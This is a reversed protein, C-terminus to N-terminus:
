KVPPFPVNGGPLAPWNKLHLDRQPFPIDIGHKQFAELIAQNLEHTAANMQAPEPSPIFVRLIFNLSSDGFAQFYIQPPPETLVRHNATCVEELVQTVHRVDAQYSVGVQLTLRAPGRGYHTWNTIKGSLIESNPIILVARDMTQFITSRVRIEKVRGWQGDIVLLDGVKIPREFLLILGSIFNNVINQLGFGLGVGLGGAVLALNLLPFGLISLVLLVTITLILYHLSTSITYQIGTDWGTRPFVHVALLSRTFRSGLLGLYIVLGTLLLNLPTLRLSGLSPGWNLWNLSRLLSESKLGWAWLTGMILAAVLIVMIGQDALRYFRQLLEAQEPFKKVTWGREPHLLHHLIKDVALWLLWLMLLVAGTWATAETMYGALNHFGLLAALIIVSLLLLVLGRLTLMVGLRRFWAPGPLEPLLKALYPRRGLWLAWALFGVGFLHELLDRSAEPFTLLEASKLVWFGLLLYALFIRLYGRYFRATGKDLALLGEPERAFIVQVVRSGLRWAVLTILLYFLSRTVPSPWWGLIVLALGAWFILGLLFFNAALIGGLDLLARLDKTQARTRYHVLTPLAWAAGRRTGWALLLLSAILGILPALHDKIFLYWRGSHLLDQLWGYGQGPLALLTQAILVVEQWFSVPTQRKLLEAKWTEEGYKKLEALSEALLLRDKELIQNEKQLTQLLLASAAQHRTALSQYRQFSAKIERSRAVAPGGAQLRALEGKLTAQSTEKAAQEKKLTDIEQALEKLRAGVREEKLSYNKVAEEAQSLPLSKVALSAKLAALAAQHERTEKEARSLARFAAATRAKLVTFEKELAVAGEAFLRPLAEPSTAPAAVKEPPRAPEQAGALPSLTLWWLIFGLFVVQHWRDWAPM